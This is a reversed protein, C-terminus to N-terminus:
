GELKGLREKLMAIAEVPTPDARNAIALYYSVYDGCQLVTLMQALRSDGRGSVVESKIGARTDLLRQTESFRQIIRVSDYTSRLMVVSVKESLSDPHDIGVVANHNLEPMVAFAAWHKSNENFQTMWRRAVPAMMGAGYVVPIRGVQRAAIQKAPNTESHTEARFATVQERMLAVAEGVPGAMEEVYGLRSLLALLLTLSFGLAARPQGKFDYTWVTVGAAEADALLAGGTCIVMRQAGRAGAQAFAARTEETGGSHSCAIVLTKADQAYAPLDYDRNVTIPVPCTDEIAAAALEGGIASGGMGCIVIREVSAFSDPLPLTQARAWTTEIHGPMANIHDIMGAPDISKMHELNDFSM